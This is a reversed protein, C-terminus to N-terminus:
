LADRVIYGYSGRGPQHGAAMFALAGLSTIAVNGMYPMTGFSGNGNRRAALFALGKDTATDTRGTIMGRAASGDPLTETNDPGADGASALCTGAAGLLGLSSRTLFQRRTWM